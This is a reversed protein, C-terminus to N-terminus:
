SAMHRCLPGRVAPATRKRGVFGTGAFQGPGAHTPRKVPQYWVFAPSITGYATAAHTPPELEQRDDSVLRM